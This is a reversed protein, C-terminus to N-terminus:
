QIMSEHIAFSHYDNAIKCVASQPTGIIIFLFRLSFKIEVRSPERRVSVQSISFDRLEVVSVVRLTVHSLLPLQIGLGAVKM